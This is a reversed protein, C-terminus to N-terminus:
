NILIFKAVSQEHSFYIALYIFSYYIIILCHGCLIEYYQGLRMFVQSQLRPKNISKYFLLCFKSQNKPIM